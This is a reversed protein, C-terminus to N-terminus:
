FLLKFTVPRTKLINTFSTTKTIYYFYDSSFFFYVQM